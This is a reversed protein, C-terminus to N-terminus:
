GVHAHGANQAEHMTPVVELTTLRNHAIEKGSLVQPLIGIVEAGAELAADAVAGMLGVSAGGYVLGMGAAAIAYGLLRAEVLYEPDSGDASGCYVAVRRVSSQIPSQVPSQFQEM